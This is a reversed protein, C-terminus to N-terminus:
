PAARLEQPLALDSGRWHLEQVARQPQVASVMLEIALAMDVRASCTFYDLALYGHEPWSHLTFHSETVIIVGTVGHPEFHRFHTSLITAGSAQVAREAAEQLKPLDNLLAFDCGYFEALIHRGLGRSFGKAQHDAITM